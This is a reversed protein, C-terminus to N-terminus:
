LTLDVPANSESLSGKRRVGDKAIRVWREGVAVTGSCRGRFRTGSITGLKGSCMGDRSIRGMLIPWNRRLSSDFEHVWDRCDGPVGPGFEEPRWNYFSDWLSLGRM